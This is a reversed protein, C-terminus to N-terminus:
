RPESCRAAPRSQNASSGLTAPRARDTVPAATKVFAAVFLLGLVLDPVATSAEAPSIRGQSHLVAVSVVYGVKEVISPIMLPRFRVPNSGIVLFAIQWAMTVSLFGYFFHPYTTPAAYHQGTVDYLFYLPTVVVIGWVGAIIFVIRAFKM